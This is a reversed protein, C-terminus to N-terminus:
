DDFSFFVIIERKNEKRYQQLRSDQSDRNMGQKKVQKQSLDPSRSLYDTTPLALIQGAFFYHWLRSVNAIKQSILLAFARSM